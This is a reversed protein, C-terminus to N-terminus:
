ETAEAMREELVKDATTINIEIKTRFPSIAKRFTYAKENLDRFRQVVETPKQNLRNYLSEPISIYGSGLGNASLGAMTGSM